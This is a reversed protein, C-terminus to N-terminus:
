SNSGFKQNRRKRQFYVRGTRFAAATLLTTAANNIKEAVLSEPERKKESWFCIVIALIGLMILLYGEITGWTLMLLLEFILLIFGSLGRVRHDYDFGALAHPYKIELIGFGMLLLSLLVALQLKEVITQAPPPNGKFIARIATIKTRFYKRFSLM